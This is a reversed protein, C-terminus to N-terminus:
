LFKLGLMPLYLNGGTYQGVNFIATPGGDLRDQHQLVQLKYIIARGLWPGPDETHWIGAQFAQRYKQYEQPFAIAFYASLIEAVEATAQFYWKVALSSHSGRCMDLSPILPDKHNESQIQVRSTFRV